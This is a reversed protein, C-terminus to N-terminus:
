FLKNIHNSKWLYKNPLFIIYYDNTHTDEENQLENRLVKIHSSSIVNLILANQQFVNPSKKNSTFIFFDVDSKDDCIYSYFM